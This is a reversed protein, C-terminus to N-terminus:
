QIVNSTLSTTTKNSGINRSIKVVQKKFSLPLENWIFNVTTCRKINIILKSKCDSKNYVIAGRLPTGCLQPEGRLDLRSASANHATPRNLWFNLNEQRFWVAGFEDIFVKDIMILRTMKKLEQKFAVTLLAPPYMVVLNLGILIVSLLLSM